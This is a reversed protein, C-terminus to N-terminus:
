DYTNQTPQNAHTLHPPHATKAINHSSFLPSESQPARGDPNLHKSASTSPMSRHHSSSPHWRQRPRLKELSQCSDFHIFCAARRHTLSIQRTLQSTYIHGLTPPPTPIRALPTNGHNVLGPFGSHEHSHRHVARPATDLPSITRGLDPFSPHRALATDNGSARNGEGGMRVSASFPTTEAFSWDGWLPACKNAVFGLARRADLTSESCSLQDCPRTGAVHRELTQRILKRHYHIQSGHHHRTVSSLPEVGSFPSEVRPPLSSFYRSRDRILGTM